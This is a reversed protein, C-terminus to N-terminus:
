EAKGSTFPKGFLGQPRLLLLVVLLVFSVADKLAPAYFGVFVQILAIIMGGALVAPVNGLGGLVSVLFAYVTYRAGADPTFSTTMSVLSGAAGALMTSLGFTLAYIPAVKVGTLRAADLDMGTSRIANGQRTRTLFLHFVIVMLISLALAALKVLPINVGGIALSAGSYPTTVSRVDAKWVQLILNELLMGIGFTIFFKAMLPARIVWHIIWRETAYGVVFLTIMTLPLGLFPDIGLSTYLTYTIYSGLVIFAGHALNVVHMIGWVISFGLAVLSLVGGLIIGNVLTQAFQISNMTPIPLSPNSYECTRLNSRGLKRVHSRTFLFTVQAFGV